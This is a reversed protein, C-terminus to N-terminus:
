RSGAIVFLCSFEEGEREGVLRVAPIEGIFLKDFPRWREVNEDEALARRQTRDGPNSEDDEEDRQTTILSGSKLESREGVGFREFALRPLGALLTYRRFKELQGSQELEEVELPPEDLASLPTEVYVLKWAAPQGAPVDFDREIVYEARVLPWQPFLLPTATVFSLREPAAVVPLGNDNLAFAGRRDAWQARMVDRVRAMRMTRFTLTNEDAWAATQSWLTAVLGFVSALITLALLLELITFGYRGSGKIPTRRTTM